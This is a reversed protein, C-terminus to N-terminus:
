SEIEISRKIKETIHTQERGRQLEMLERYKQEDKSLM